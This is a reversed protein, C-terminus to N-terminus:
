AEGRKERSQLRNEAGVEHDIESYVRCPIGVRAAVARALAMSQQARATAGLAYEENYERLYKTCLARADAIDQTTYISKVKRAM